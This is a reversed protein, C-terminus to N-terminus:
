EGPTTYIRVCTTSAHLHRHLHIAITGVNMCQTQARTTRAHICVLLAQKHKHTYLTNTHTHIKYVDRLTDQIFTAACLPCMCMCVHMSLVLPDYVGTMLCLVLALIPGFMRFDHLSYHGSTAAFCPPPFALICTAPM